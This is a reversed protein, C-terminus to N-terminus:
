ELGPFNNQLPFPAGALLNYRHHTTELSSSSQTEGAIRKEAWFVTDALRLSIKLRCLWFVSMSPLNLLIFAQRLPGLV